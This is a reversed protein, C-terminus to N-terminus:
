HGARDQNLPTNTHSNNNYMYLIKGTHHHVMCELGHLQAGLCRGLEEGPEQLQHLLKRFGHFDELLPYTVLDMVCLASLECGSQAQNPGHWSSSVCTSVQHVHVM